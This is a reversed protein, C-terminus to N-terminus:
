DCLLALLDSRGGCSSPSALCPNHQTTAATQHHPLEVNGTAICPSRPTRCVQSMSDQMQMFEEASVWKVEHPELGAREPVVDEETANIDIMLVVTPQGFPKGSFFSSCLAFRDPESEPYPRLLGRTISGIASMPAM